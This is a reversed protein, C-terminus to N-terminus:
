CRHTPTERFCPTGRNVVKSLLLLSPALVIFFQAVCITLHDMLRLILLACRLITRGTFRAPRRPNNVHSTMSSKYVTESNWTNCPDIKKLSACNQKWFTADYYRTEPFEDSQRHRAKPRHRPMRMFILIGTTKLCLFLYLM